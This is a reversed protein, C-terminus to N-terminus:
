KANIMKRDMAKEIMMKFINNPNQYANPDASSTQSVMTQAKQVVSKTFNTKKKTKGAKSLAIAISQKNPKGDKIETKINSSVAGKSSGSVLPM